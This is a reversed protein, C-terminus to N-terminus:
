GLDSAFLVLGVGLKRKVSYGAFFRDVSVVKVTAAPLPGDDNRITGVGQSVALTANTASSLNITFTEDLEATKDSYITITVTKSIQGPKFTLTGSAAKYDSGAAATGNATAYRVTITQTSAASLRVTFTAKTSTRNGELVAVNNVSISPVNVDDNQITGLGQSDAVSANASAGSLNVYFTENSETVTDGTAYVTITQSTVGPAFSLTDAAATYDSGAAASGDATAYNVTVTDSAAVSLSVTFTFATAGSNGEAKSVNSISLAPLYEPMASVNLRGGTTTIGALSSTPTARASDLLANRITQASAGPHAAAYLAAAGTVHPTAMSTGSYSGYTNGPLTSVVSVGPAGLDVTAAGYNSFSAKGGSSNIAAVAIVSDYGAGATTNYNSPYSAVADNNDGVGDPGGNGAAAVFLINAKAARTIADLLSQSFGGGGWSNNAAVINLGHRTKLDTLYDLARVADSLYGGNPGLFKASIMGVNWNVGAVGTANGGAGGITGAVHTGHQDGGVDYISNDNNFFDWGHIDDIYGNGDDDFGNGAVEFPNTWINAQLDPHSLDIGEDVIGVFVSSSGTKGAAWAEGAQSGYVNTPSTEDGYMGWLSGNTYYPDNSAAQKTVLYDPEAFAVAPDSQLKRLVADMAAGKALKVVDLEGRAAGAAALREQLVLAATGRVVAKAEESVGAHFQVLLQDTFKGASLM